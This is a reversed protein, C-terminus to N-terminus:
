IGGLLAARRMRAASPGANKLRVCLLRTRNVLVHTTYRRKVWERRAASERAWVAMLLEGQRRYCELVRHDALVSEHLARATIMQSRRDRHIHRM